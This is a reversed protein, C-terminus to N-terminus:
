KLAIPLYIWEEYVDCDKNPSYQEWMPAYTKWANELSFRLDIKHPAYTYKNQQNIWRPFYYEMIDYDIGGEFGVGACL